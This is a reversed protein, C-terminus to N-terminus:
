GNRVRQLNQRHVAEYCAAYRCAKDEDFLVMSQALSEPAEGSRILAIYRETAGILGVGYGGDAIVDPHGHNPLIQRPGLARLRGLDRLHADFGQPEAVYTVTDELTDGSLLIQREPLWLVTADDSHIDFHLLEVREGGLSLEMRGEFTETPLILPNIAPAGGLTGEEIAARDRELHAATRANAIIRGDAFVETGAVHDLHHHSLVLTFERVGLRELHARVARAHELTTHPDYVIASSGAVLAYSAIGLALAGDDVWNRGEGWAYGPLRGDYYAYIGPLPTLIRMGEPPRM